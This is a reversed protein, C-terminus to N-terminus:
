RTGTAPPVWASSYEGCVATPFDDRLRPVAAFFCPVNELGDKEETHRPCAGRAPMRALSLSLSSLRRCHNRTLFFTAFPSESGIVTV